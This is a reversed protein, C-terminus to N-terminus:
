IDCKLSPLFKNTHNIKLPEQVQLYHFKEALLFNNGMFECLILKDIM